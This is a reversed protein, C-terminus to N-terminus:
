SEYLSSSRYKKNIIVLLLHSIMEICVLLYNYSNMELSALIVFLKRHSVYESIITLKMKDVVRLKIDKSYIVRRLQKHCDNLKSKAYVGSLFILSQGCAFNIIALGLLSFFHFKNLPIFFLLYMLFIQGIFTSSFAASCIQSWFFNGYYVQKLLSIFRASNSSIKRHWRKTKDMKTDFREKLKIFKQGVLFANFCFLFCINIGYNTAATAAGSIILSHINLLILLPTDSHHLIMNPLFFSYNFLLAFIVSSDVNSYYLKSAVIIKGNPRRFFEDKGEELISLGDFWIQMKVSRNTEDIIYIAYIASLFWFAQVAWIVDHISEYNYAFDGLYLKRIPEIPAFIYIPARILYSTCLCCLLITIARNYWPSRLNLYTLWFFRKKILFRSFPFSKSVFSEIGSAM